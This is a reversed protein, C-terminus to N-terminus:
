ALFGALAVSALIGMAWFILIIECMVGRGNTTPRM